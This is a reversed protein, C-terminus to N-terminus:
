SKEKEAPMTGEVNGYYANFFPSKKPFEDVKWVKDFKTMSIKFKAEYDAKAISVEDQIKGDLKNISNDVMEGETATAAMEEFYSKLSDNVVQGYNITTVTVDVTATTPLAEEEKKKDKEKKDKKKADKDKTDEEEAPAEPEIIEESNVVFTFTLLKEEIAKRTKKDIMENIYEEVGSIKLSKVDGSYIESLAETDQLQLAEFFTTATDTPSTGKIAKVAACGSFVFISLVIILSTAFIRKM